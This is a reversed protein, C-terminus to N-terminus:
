AERRLGTARTICLLEDNQNTYTTETTTILMHRGERGVREHINAIESQAYITDGVSPYKFVEIENGGNLTAPLEPPYPVRPLGGDDDAGDDRLGRIGDSEPDNRFARTIPDTTGPPTKNLYTCYIPPTVIEGFKTTKAFEEDWYRPDPDMIAQTFRRLGEKEIEWLSAQRKEGTAGIVAKVEDTLYTKGCSMITYKRENGFPHVAEGGVKGADQDSV